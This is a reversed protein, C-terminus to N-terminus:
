SVDLHTALGVAILLGAGGLRLGARRAMVLATAIRVSVSGDRVNSVSVGSVLAHSVAGVGSPRNVGVAGLRPM